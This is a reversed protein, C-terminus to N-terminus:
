GVVRPAKASHDIAVMAGDAIAAAIDEDFGVLMPVHGLAAGQTLIPNVTNFVIALPVVGRSQMEDLMRASAVSGKAADLVLVKSDAGISYQGRHTL